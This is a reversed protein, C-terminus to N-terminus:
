NPCHERYESTRLTAMIEDCLPFNVFSEFKDRNSNAHWGQISMKFAVVISLFLISATTKELQEESCYLELM